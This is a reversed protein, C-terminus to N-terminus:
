EGKVFLGAVHKSALMALNCYHPTMDSDIRSFCMMLISKRDLIEYPVYIIEKINIFVPSVGDEYEQTVSDPSTAAEMIGKKVTDSSLLASINDINARNASSALRLEGDKITFLGAYGAGCSKVLAVLVNKMEDKANLNSSRRLAMIFSRYYDSIGDLMKKYKRNISEAAGELLGEDSTEFRSELLKQVTARLKSNEDELADREQEAKEAAKKAEEMEDMVADYEEGFDYSKEDKAPASEGKEVLVTKDDFASMIGRCAICSLIVCFLGINASSVGLSGLLSRWYLFALSGGFLVAHAFVASLHSRLSEVACFSSPLVFLFFLPDGTTSSLVAFAAFDVLFLFHLLMLPQVRRAAHFLVLSFVFSIGWFFSAMLFTQNDVVANNNSVYYALYLVFPVSYVARSLLLYNM